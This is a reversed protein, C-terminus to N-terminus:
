IFSQLSTKRFPFTLPKAEPVLFELNLALALSPGGWHGMARLRIEAMWRPDEGKGWAM